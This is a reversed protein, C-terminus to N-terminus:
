TGKRVVRAIVRLDAGVRAIDHIALPVRDALRALGGPFGAIGRAPDGLLCPALYLLLEDVLGLALLAGNLGAGAEVHLENVEREGFARMMASLDVRGNGDPLEVVDIGAPWAPNRGRATVMLADGGALVKATAPTEAKRDVVIRRPQRPTDVGRATLEPDDQLVTGIGTMVACARARWRHGDARAEEGTIWRSEGGALATRGDLSAAVKMRVWPRGRTMRSLFGANQERAEDGCLGLDVRIGAARLRDAGRHASPNPDAIAAVVRAIGAAIIAETCPPTRGTHHCPELTVYLTAGRSDHGRSKTDILANVEAHAEGARTHWGEGLVGDDNVIVCGVRPNPTTTFLGREALALAQAMYARDTDSYVTM